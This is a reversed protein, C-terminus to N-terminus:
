ERADNLDLSGSPERPVSGQPWGNSPNASPCSATEFDECDESNHSHPAGMTELPTESDECHESNSKQPSGGRQWLPNVDYIPSPPRGPGDEKVEFRNRVFGRGILLLLPADLDTVRKFHSRLSQHLDRKTFYALQNNDIWRLVKTANATAPDMGMDAFAAKSHAILFHGIRVAGDVTNRSIPTHWPLADGAHEALHVLGTIRAVAGFLKGGWDTMAGLEGFELLQPEIWAEFDQMGKKAESDFKLTHPTPENNEDRAFTLDLIAFVGKRYEALVSAPVPEANTDRRGLLSTPMAYLFRALLGRGRFGPNQALGQIVDPQVALGMTLAPEKVFEPPRNIRDIRIDDGAHGRLYVGFNGTGNKSYRGAMLDFVDGEPSMVAIRGGQALLLASLKEPTCDDALYRTATKVVMAELAEAADTAERTLAERNLSDANAAKDQLRKLTAEKIRYNTLSRAIDPASKRAEIQEYEELPKKVASFVASKRNGSPLATVTFINVPEFLWRERAAVFKKAGAAALVSLALMAPLDVPTQTATAQAEVFLRLWDPFVDIPFAPLEHRHFPM